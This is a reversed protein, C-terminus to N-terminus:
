RGEELREDLRRITDTVAAFLREEPAGQFRRQVRLRDRLPVDGWTGFRHDEAIARAVCRVRVPCGRCIERARRHGNGMGTGTVPPFWWTSPLGLCAAEEEWTSPTFEEWMDGLATSM